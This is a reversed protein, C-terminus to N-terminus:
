ARPEEGHLYDVADATRHMTWLPEEGRAMAAVKGSDPYEVVEPSVLSGAVVYRAPEDTANWVQHAGGPGAPFHVVDGADLVREGDPTRLTPSGLVVLLLEDAGHHFHYPCQTEGPPLEYLTMGLKQGPGVLRKVKQNWGDTPPFGEDWQEDFVNM